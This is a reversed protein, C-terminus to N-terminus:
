DKLRIQNLFLHKNNFNIFLNLQALFKFIYNGSKDSYSASFYNESFKEGNLTNM